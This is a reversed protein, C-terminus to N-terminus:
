SHARITALPPRQLIGRVGFAGVVAVGLAGGFVGLLWLTVSPTYTMELAMSAVVRGCLSAASSAVTGALAGIALFELLLGRMIVHRGAGFVRLLAAEHQREPLTAQLAALFVMLGALLSFLFVYQVAETVRVIISRVQTLVAAVDIVTVNPFKRVLETLLTYKEPPLYFSSIYTAPFKELVGPPTVAFFNVRFSDWSVKRLNVVKVRVSQDAIQFTLENGVHLGLDRALGEEVSIVAHGNGDVDWWNGTTIVNERPTKEAWSLNFEREVLRKAREDVFNESQVVRDDIATLRGRVMPYFEPPVVVHPAFFQKLPEVQEPQVNILFRNPTDVPFKAIWEQLLDARVVSLLLLAMLGIGFAVIQLISGGRAQLNRLGFRWPGRIRPLIHKLFIILLWSLFALIVLTAAVGGLVIAGLKVDRSQWWVLAVVIVIALGYSLWASPAPAGLDRRLVRLPPVDKIRLLAPWSFGFLVALGTALGAVFPQWSPAPLEAPTFDSLLGLLVAQGFYGFVVGILTASVGLVSVEGLYLRTVHKQGAGFCRLLACQDLQRQVFQRTAMAVAVGSLLVSALAALGLFRTARDLATRIEPRADDIGRMRLENKYQQDIATRLSLISAAPGAMYASYQVRSGATILETKTLDETNFLLRPALNFVNGAARAPENTLIASVTLSISGLKVTDGVKVGLASALRNELWAQGAAPIDRTAEDPAFLQTAIRLEGRLPYNAAIAKVGALELHEGALVMSPFEVSETYNAANKSALERLASPLPNSASVVLDGGLLENARLALAQNVRDAFFSVATSSAVALVLAALLIRVDNAALDRRVFRWLLTKIQM